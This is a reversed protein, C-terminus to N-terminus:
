ISARVTLLVVAGAALTLDKASKEFYDRSAAEVGNQVNGYPAANLYGALIEKKSYERELEVSLILEKIKRTITQDKTWNNNLKVLQQTITSGGQRAGGHNIVDNLAARSIGKVDFGGHQFFEKDEIAVTAQKVFPSIQDDKVPIRKVADYDEWLLVTNTKDYYRISGGIKDGSIDRLNPLDKRFYAFVGVLLLFGAIIGIGAVKLAMIGGERSFWYKYLRKPHLRYITRKIRSKPLGALRAAKRRARADRAALFRESLNRHIKITQGSKTVFTNRARRATQRPRRSGGKNSAKM